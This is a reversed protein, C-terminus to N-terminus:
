KQNGWQICVCEIKRSHFIRQNQDNKKKTETQTRHQISIVRIINLPRHHQNHKTENSPFMTQLHSADLCFFNEEPKNVHTHTHLTHIIIIMKKRHFEEVSDPM